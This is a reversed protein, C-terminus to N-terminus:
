EDRGMDTNSEADDVIKEVRPWCANYMLRAAESRDAMYNGGHRFQYRVIDRGLADSIEDKVAEWVMDAVDDRELTADFLDDEEDRSMEPVHKPQSPMVELRPDDLNITM